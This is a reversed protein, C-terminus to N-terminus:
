KKTEIELLDRDGKNLTQVDATGFAGKLWQPFIVSCSSAVDACDCM